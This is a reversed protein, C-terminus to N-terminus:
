ESLDIVKDVFMSTEQILEQHQDMKLAYFVANIKTAKIKDFQGIFKSADLIEILVPKGAPSLHILFNGFERTHSIKGDALEWSIINAEPEYHM